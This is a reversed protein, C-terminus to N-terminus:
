WMVWLLGGVTAMIVCLIVFAYYRGISTVEEELNM